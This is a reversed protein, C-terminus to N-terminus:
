VTAIGHHRNRRNHFNSYMEAARVDFCSRCIGHTEGGQGRAFVRVSCAPSDCLFLDAGYEQALGGCKPCKEGTVAKCDMCVRTMSKEELARRALVYDMCGVPIM